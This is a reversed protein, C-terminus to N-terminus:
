GLEKRSIVRLGVIRFPQATYGPRKRENKEFADFHSEDRFIGAFPIPKPHYTVPADYFVLLPM